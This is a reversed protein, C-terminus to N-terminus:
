QITNRQPIAYLKTWAKAIEDYSHRSYLYMNRIDNRIPTCNDLDSLCSQIDVLIDGITMVPLWKTEDVCIEGDCNVACHYIKTLFKCKPPRFPYDYPFVIDIYFEGNEYVTKSPGEFLFLFM